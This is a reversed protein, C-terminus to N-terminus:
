NCQNGKLGCLFSTVERHSFSEFFESRRLLGVTFLINEKCREYKESEEKKVKYAKYILYETCEDFLYKFDDKEFISEREMLYALIHRIYNEESCKGKAFSALFDDNLVFVGGVFCFTRRLSVCRFLSDGNDGFLKM